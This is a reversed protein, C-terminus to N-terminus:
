LAAAKTAKSEHLGEYLESQMRIIQMTSFNYIKLRMYKSDKGM